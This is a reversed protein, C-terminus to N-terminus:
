QLIALYAAQRREGEPATTQPHLMTGLHPEETILHGSGWGQEPAESKCAPCLDLCSNYLTVATGLCRGEMPGHRGRSPCPAIQPFLQGLRFFWHPSSARYIARRRTPSTQSPTSSGALQLNPSGLRLSPPESKPISCRRRPSPSRFDVHVPVASFPGPILILKWFLWSRLHWQSALMSWHTTVTLLAWCTSAWPWSRVAWGPLGLDPMRTENASKPKRNYFTRRAQLDCDHAGRATETSTIGHPPRTTAKHKPCRSDLGEATPAPEACAPPDCSNVSCWCAVV